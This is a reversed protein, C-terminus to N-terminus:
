DEPRIATLAGTVLTTGLAAATELDVAGTRHRNVAVAAASGVLGAAALDAGPHPLGADHALAAARRVLEALAHDVRRRVAEDHTVDSELLLAFAGDSSEVFDLFGRTLAEPFPLDRRLHADVAALLREGLRDVVALYLDLKGPFHRYLVPKSVEAREAIDDMAVHHFGQHAFLDQALDLVQERRAARSM